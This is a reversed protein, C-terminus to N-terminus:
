SDSRGGARPPPPLTGEWRSMRDVALARVCPGQVNSHRGSRPSCRADDSPLRSVRCAALLRQSRPPTRSFPTASLSPPLPPPIKIRRPNLNTSPRTPLPGIPQTTRQAPIPPSLSGCGPEASGARERELSKPSDPTAPSPSRAPSTSGM